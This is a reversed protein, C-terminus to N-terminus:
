RKPDKRRRGRFDYPDPQFLCLNQRAEVAGRDNTSCVDGSGFPLCGMIM